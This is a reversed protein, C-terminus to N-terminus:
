VITVRDTITSVVAGSVRDTIRNPEQGSLYQAGFYQAAFYDQSFYRLRNHTFRYTISAAPAGSFRDTTTTVM